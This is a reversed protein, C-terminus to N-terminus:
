KERSLDGHQLVRVAQRLSSSLQTWLHRCLSLTDSNLSDVHLLVGGAGPTSPIHKSSSQLQLREGILQVLRPQVENAWFLLVIFCFFFSGLVAVSLNEIPDGILLM